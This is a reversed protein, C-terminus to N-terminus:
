NVHMCGHKNTQQQQNPTNQQKAKAKQSSQMDVVLSDNKNRENPQRTVITTKRKRKM